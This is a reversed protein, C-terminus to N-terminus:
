AMLWQLVLRSLSTVMRSLFADFFIVALQCVPLCAVMVLPKHRWVASANVETSSFVSCLLNAIGEQEHYKALTIYLNRRFEHFVLCECFTVHTQLFTLCMSSSHGIIASYYKLFISIVKISVVVYSINQIISINDTRNNFQNNM